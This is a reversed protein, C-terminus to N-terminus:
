TEMELDEKTQSRDKEPSGLGERCFANMFGLWGLVGAWSGWLTWLTLSKHLFVWMTLGFFMSAMFYKTSNQM